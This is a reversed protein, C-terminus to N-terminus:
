RHGRAIQLAEEYPPTVAQALEGQHHLANGLHKLAYAIERKEGIERTLVM